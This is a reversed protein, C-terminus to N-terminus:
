YNRINPNPSVQQKNSKLNLNDFRSMPQLDPDKLPRHMKNECTIAQLGSDLLIVSDNFSGVAVRVGWGSLEGQM